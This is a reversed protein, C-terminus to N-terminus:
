SRKRRPSFITPTKIGPTACRRQKQEGIGPLEEVNPVKVSDSAPLADDTTDSSPRLETDITGVAAFLLVTAIVFSQWVPLDLPGTVLSLMVGGWGSLTPLVGALANLGWGVVAVGVGLSYALMGFRRWASSQRFVTILLLVIAATLIM